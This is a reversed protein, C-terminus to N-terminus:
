QAVTLDMPLMFTSVVEQTDSYIVQVSVKQGDELFMQYSLAASAIVINGTTSGSEGYKEKNVFLKLNRFDEDYEVSDVYSSEDDEYKKFKEM